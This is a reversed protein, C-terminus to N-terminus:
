QITNYITWLLYKSIILQEIETLLIYFLTHLNYVLRTHDITWDCTVEHITFQAICGPLTGRVVIAHVNDM